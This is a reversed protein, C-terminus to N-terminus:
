QDDKKMQRLYLVVVVMLALTLLISVASAYGYDLGRTAEFFTVVPLTSTAFNPGGVTMIWIIEISNALWIIRLLTTTRITAIITPWTVFRFRQWASAGDLNAAEYLEAPVAQLAALLMLAFFPMGHWIMAIVVAAMATSPQNLWPIGIDVIGLRMLLDNVVGLNGDLMWRWLLAVVTSPIIWPLLVLSRLVTRGKFARNMLTAIAMGLVFQVPLVVGVWILTARAAKWFMGDTLARIYNDLGIFRVQDLERLNYAQFSYGVSQVIPGAVVLAVVILAPLLLIYPLLVRWSRRTRPRTRGAGGRGVDIAAASGTKTPAISM